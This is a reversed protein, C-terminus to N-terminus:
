NFPNSVYFTVSCIVLLKLLKLDPSAQDKIIGHCIQCMISFFYWCKSNMGLTSIKCQNYKLVSVNGSFVDLCTQVARSSFYRFM